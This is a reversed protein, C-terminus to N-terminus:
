HVTTLAEKKEDFSLLKIKSDEEDLRDTESIKKHMEIYDDVGILIYKFYEEELTPKKEYYWM